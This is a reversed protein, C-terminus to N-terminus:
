TRLLISAIISIWMTVVIGVSWVFNRDVKASLDKIDRKLETLQGDLHEVRTELRALREGPPVQEQATTM